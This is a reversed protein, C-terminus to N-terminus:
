TGSSSIKYGPLFQQVRTYIKIFVSCLISELVGDTWGGAGVVGGGVEEGIVEIQPM